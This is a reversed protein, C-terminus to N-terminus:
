RSKKEKKAKPKLSDEVYAIEDSTLNFYAYVEDDTWSKTSDLMPLQSNKVAPTFGSTRLYTAAYFVYLKSLTFTMINDAEQQNAVYFVRNFHATTDSSVFQSKYSASFPFIIKLAGTNIPQHQIMAKKKGSYYVEHEGKFLDEKTISPNEHVLKMKPEVSNIKNVIDDIITNRLIPVPVQHNDISNQIIWHSTDVGVDFYEGEGHIVAEVLSYKQLLTNTFWKGFGVTPIFISSPTVFILYGDSKVLEVGTKVFKYWLKNNKAKNASDQYPPNGLVVDFLMDDYEKKTQYESRTVIKKSKAKAKPPIFNSCTINKSPINLGMVDSLKKFIAVMAPDIDNYYVNEPVFDLGANVMAERLYVIFGGRGGCPDFVTFHNKHKALNVVDLTIKRLLPSPEAVFNTENRHSPDELM